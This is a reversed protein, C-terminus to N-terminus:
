GEAQYEEAEIQQGILAEYQKRLNLALRLAAEELPGKNLFVVKSYIDGQGSTAKEATIETEVSFYGENISRLGSWYNDWNTISTPPISMIAPLSSDKPMILLRRMEKCAKGREGKGSGWQNFPCSLCPMPGFPGIGGLVNRAEAFAVFKDADQCNGIRGDTSSCIPAQNSETAGEREGWLGRVPRAAIVIGTIVKTIEGTLTQEYAQSTSILKYRPPRLTGPTDQEQAETILARRPDLEQKAVAKTTM